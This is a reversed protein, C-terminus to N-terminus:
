TNNHKPRPPPPAVSTPQPRHLNVNRWLLFYYTFFIILLMLSSMYNRMDFNNALFVLRNDNFEICAITFLYVIDLFTVMIIAFRIVKRNRLNRKYLNYSFIMFIAYLILMTFIIPSSKPSIVFFSNLGAGIIFAFYALFLPTPFAASLRPNKAMLVVHITYYYVGILFITSSIFIYLTNIASFTSLYPNNRANQFFYALLFIFQLLLIVIKDFFLIVCKPTNSMTDFQKNCTSCFRLSIVVLLPVLLVNCVINSVNYKGEYLNLIPSVLGYAAYLFFIILLVRKNTNLKSIKDLIFSFDKDWVALLLPLFSTLSFILTYLNLGGFAFFSLFLVIFSVVIYIFNGSKLIKNIRKILTTRM